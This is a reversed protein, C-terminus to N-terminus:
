SAFRGDDSNALISTHTQAIVCLRDRSGPQIGPAVEARPEDSPCTPGADMRARTGESNNRGVAGGNASPSTTAAKSIAASLKKTYRSLNAAGPFM